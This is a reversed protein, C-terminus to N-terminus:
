RLARKFCWALAPADPSPPWGDPLSQVWQHGPYLHTGAEPHTTEIFFRRERIHPDDAQLGGWRDRNGLPVSDRDNWQCDLFYEGVAQLMNESQSFDIFQGKDTRERDRLACLAAFATNPGSASDM